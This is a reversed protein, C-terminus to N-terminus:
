LDPAVDPDHRVIFKIDVGLIPYTDFIVYHYVRKGAIHPNTHSLTNVEQIVRIGRASFFSRWEALEEETCHMGFHSIRPLRDQMWSAGKTYHLVELEHSRELGQYNFALNAENVAAGGRVSGAAVVHDHAWDPMGMDTLLAIAAAPNDPCLAVQEIEFKM